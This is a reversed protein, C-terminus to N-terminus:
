KIKLAVEGSKNYYVNGYGLDKVLKALGNKSINIDKSEKSTDTYILLFLDGFKNLPKREGEVDGNKNVVQAERNSLLNNETENPKSINRNPALIYYGGIPTGKTFDANNNEMYKNFEDNSGYYTNYYALEGTEAYYGLATARYANYESEVDAIKSKEINKFLAPVAVVALIGIIAIVVLLEILTFGKEGKKM